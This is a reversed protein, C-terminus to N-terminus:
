TKAQADELTAAPAIWPRVGRALYTNRCFWRLLEEVLPVRAYEFGAVPQTRDASRGVDGQTARREVVDPDFHRRADSCRVLPRIRSDTRWLCVLLEGSLTRGGGRVAHGFRGFPLEPAEAAYRVLM